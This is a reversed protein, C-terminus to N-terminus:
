RGSPHAAREAGLSWVNEELHIPYMSQTSQFLLEQEIQGIRKASLELGLKSQIEEKRLATVAEGARKELDSFQKNKYDLLKQIEATKEPEQEQIATLCQLQRFHSDFAEKDKAWNTSLFHNEEAAQALANEVQAKQEYM